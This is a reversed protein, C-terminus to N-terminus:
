AYFQIRELIDQYEWSTQFLVMEKEKNSYGSREEGGVTVWGNRPFVQTMGKREKEEQNVEFLFERKREGERRKKKNGTGVNKSIQRVPLFPLFTGAFAFLSPFPFESVALLSFRLSTLFPLFSFHNFHSSLLPFTLFLLRFTVLVRCSLFTM